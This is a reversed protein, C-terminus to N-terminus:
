STAKLSFLEGSFEPISINNLYDIKIEGYYILDDSPNWQISDGWLWVLERRGLVDKESKILLQKADESSICNKISLRRTIEDINKGNHTHFSSIVGDLLPKLITVFNFGVYREPVKLNIKIGLLSQNEYSSCLNIKCKSMQLWVTSLSLTTKLSEIKAGSWSVLPKNREWYNSDDINSNFVKYKMYHDFKFSKSDVKLEAPSEIKREFIIGSKALNKFSDIGVNYFLINELDFSTNKDRESSYGAYLCSNSNRELSNKLHKKLTDRMERMWGKPEFKLRESSWLEIKDEFYNLFYNMSRSAIFQKWEDTNTVENINPANNIVPTIKIPTTLWKFFKVILFIVLACFGLVIAIILIIFFEIM